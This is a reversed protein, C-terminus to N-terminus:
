MTRGDAITATGHILQAGRARPTWEGSDEQRQEWRSYRVVASCRRIEAQTFESESEIQGGSVRPETAWYANPKHM